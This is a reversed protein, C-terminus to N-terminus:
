GCSGKRQMNTLMLKGNNQHAAHHQQQQMQHVSTGLTVSSVSAGITVSDFEHFNTGGQPVGGSDILQTCSVSPSCGLECSEVSEGRIVCSFVSMDPPADLCSSSCMSEEINSCGMRNSGSIFFVARTVRMCSIEEFLVAIM